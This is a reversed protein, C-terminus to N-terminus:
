FDLNKQLTEFSKGGERKLYRSIEDHNEMSVLFCVDVEIKVLAGFIKVPAGGRSLIKLLIRPM